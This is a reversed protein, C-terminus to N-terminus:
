SVQRSFADAAPNIALLLKFLAVVQDAYRNERPTGTVGALRRTPVAALRELLNRDKRSFFSHCDWWYSVLGPSLGCDQLLRLPLFLSCKQSLYIAHVWDHPQRTHYDAAEKVSPQLLHFYFLAQPHAHQRDILFRTAACYQLTKEIGWVIHRILHVAAGTVPILPAITRQYNFRFSNPMLKLLLLALELELAAKLVIKPQGLIKKTYLEIVFSRATDQVSLLRVGCHGHHPFAGGDLQIRPHTSQPQQAVEAWFGNVCRTAVDMLQPEGRITASLDFSKM